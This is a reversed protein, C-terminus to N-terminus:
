YAIEDDPYNDRHHEVTIENDFLEDDTPGGCYVIRCKPKKPMILLKMTILGLGYFFIAGAIIWIITM